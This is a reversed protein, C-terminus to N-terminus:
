PEEDDRGPGLFLYCGMAMSMAILLGGFIQIFRDNRDVGWALLLLGIPVFIVMLTRTFRRTRQADSLRLDAPDDGLDVNDWDIQSVEAKLDELAKRAPAEQSALVVIQAYGLAGGWMAANSALIVQANVGRAQLAAVIADAEFPTRTSLLTVTPERDDDM